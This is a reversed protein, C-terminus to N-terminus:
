ADCTCTNHQAPVQLHRQQGVARVKRETSVPTIRLAPCGALLSCVPRYKKAGFLCSQIEVSCNKKIHLPCQAGKEQVNLPFSLSPVGAQIPAPCACSSSRFTVRETPMTLQRPSCPPASTQVSQDGTQGSVHATRERQGPSHRNTRKANQLRKDVSVGM